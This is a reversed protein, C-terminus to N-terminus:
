RGLAERIRRNMDASESDFRGRRDRAREDLAPMGLESRMAKADARLEGATDGRLRRAQEPTLGYEAGIATRAITVLEDDV